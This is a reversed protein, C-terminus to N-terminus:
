RQRALRRSPPSPGVYRTGVPCLRKVPCQNHLPNRSRCYNRGLQILLIHAEIRRGPPTALELKAKVKDYNDKDEAFGLRKSVRFVHTDVPIIDHGSWFALMIDATKQGVGPMSLLEKRAEQIPKKLVPKLNGQYKKLVLRSIEKLRKAKGRYLGGVKILKKIENVTAKALQEPTKFRSTLNSFAAFSNRDNTNQSLVTRVLLLFPDEKSIQWHNFLKGLKNLIATMRRRKTKLNEAHNFRDTPLKLTM